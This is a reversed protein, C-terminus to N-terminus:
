FEVTIKIEAPYGRQGEVTLAAKDIYVTDFMGELNRYVVKNKTQKEQTMTFEVKM